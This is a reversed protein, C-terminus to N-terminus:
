YIKGSHYKNDNIRNELQQNKEKEVALERRLRILEKEQEAFKIKEEKLMQGLDANDQEFREKLHLAEDREQLAHSVQSDTVQKIEEIKSDNETQLQQWVRKVAENVPDPPTQLAPM